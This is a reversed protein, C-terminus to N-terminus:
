EMIICRYGYGAIKEVGRLTGRTKDVGFRGGGCM